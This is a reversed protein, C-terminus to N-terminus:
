EGSTNTDMIWEDRASQYEYFTKGDTSVAYMGTLRDANEGEKTRWSFAYVKVGDIDMVEGESLFDKEGFGKDKLYTEMRTQASSVSIGANEDSKGCASFGAMAACILLVSLVKLMFNKM